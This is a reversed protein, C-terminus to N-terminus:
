ALDFAFDTQGLALVLSVFPVDDFLAVAFAFHLAFQLGHLASRPLDLAEDFRQKIKGNLTFYSISTKFNSGHNKAEFCLGGCAGLSQAEREAGSRHEIAKRM